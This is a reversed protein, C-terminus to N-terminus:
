GGLPDNCPMVYLTDHVEESGFLESLLGVDEVIFKREFGVVIVVVFEVPVVVILGSHGRRPRSIVQTRM